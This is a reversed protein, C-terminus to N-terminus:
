SVMLYSYFLSIYWLRGKPSSITMIFIQHHKNSKGITRCYKYIVHIPNEPRVKVLKHDDKNIVNKNIGISFFLM